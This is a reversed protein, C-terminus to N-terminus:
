EPSGFVTCKIAKVDVFVLIGKDKAIIDIEGFRNQFNSELIVYGKNKLAEIALNEALRGTARNQFKM